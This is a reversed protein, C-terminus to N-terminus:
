KGPFRVNILDGLAPHTKSVDSHGEELTLYMVDDM